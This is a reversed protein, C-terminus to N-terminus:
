YKNELEVLISSLPFYHVLVHGRKYMRCWCAQNSLIGMFRSIQILLVVIMITIKVGSLCNEKSIQVDASIECDNLPTLLRQETEPSSIVLM